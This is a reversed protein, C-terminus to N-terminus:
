FFIVSTSHPDQQVETIQENEESATETQTSQTAPTKYTNLLDRKLDRPLNQETICKRDFSVRAAQMGSTLLSPVNCNVIKIQSTMGYLDLAAYVPGNIPIQGACPGYQIGNIIFFLERGPSIFFGIRSGTDCPKLDKFNHNVLLKPHISHTAKESRGVSDFYKLHVENNISSNQNNQNTAELNNFPDSTSPRISFVCSKGLRSLDPLLYQPITIEEPNHLTIGCRLNGSWGDKSDTIEIMFVEGEQLPRQSFVLANSFSETRTAVTCNDTLQINIGHEQNLHFM